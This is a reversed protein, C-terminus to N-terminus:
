GPANTKSARKASPLLLKFVDQAPLTQGAKLHNTPSDFIPTLFLQSNSRYALFEVNLARVSLVFFESTPLGTSLSLASRLADETKITAGSAFMELRWNSKQSRTITLACRQSNGVMVPYSATELGSVVRNPDSGPTWALLDSLGVYSEAFPQGLQAADAEAASTFACLFSPYTGSKELAQLTQLADAASQEQPSLAQTAM